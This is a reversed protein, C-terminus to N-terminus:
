AAKERLHAEEPQPLRIGLEAALVEVQKMYESMEAVKLKTTTPHVERTEGGIEVIRPPIFQAKLFEHTEAHGHGTNRAIIGVWRHYLRNQAARPGSATEIKVVMNADIPIRAVTAAALDRQGPSAIRFTQDSM